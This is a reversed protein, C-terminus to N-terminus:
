RDHLFMHFDQTSCWVKKLSCVGLGGVLLINEKPELNLYLHAHFCKEPNYM